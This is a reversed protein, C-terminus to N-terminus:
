NSISGSGSVKKDINTPNGSYSIDGSGHVRAKLRNTTKISIDGSGSVYAETNEANLSEGDFDGSGTVKIELDRANGRLNMDGSGTVKADLTGVAVNLDIDGSGTLSIEMNDTKLQDKTDVDGSGTLSVANVEQVPVTVHIGKNTRISVNKQIKIVLAGGEVQIDLFDHINEDTTVSINGEAGNELHVDMSGVVQISSYDNTNINKTTINGNGVVKQKGWQAIADTSCFALLLIILSINRTNKM